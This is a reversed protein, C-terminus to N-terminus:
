SSNNDINNDKPSVYNQPCLGATAEKELCFLLAIRKEKEGWINNGKNINDQDFREPFLSMTKGRNVRKLKVLRFVSFAFSAQPM